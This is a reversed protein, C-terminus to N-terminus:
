GETIEERSHALAQETDISALLHCTEIYAVLNELPVDELITHSSQLIYGGNAGLREARETIEARVDAPTGLPLTENVSIGGYFTVQDGYLAKLRYPDYVSPDLPNFVDLGIEILDPFIAFIDGDSHQGVIRGLDKVRQYCVALRPKIFRKWLRPSFLLGTKSGWDDGFYFGDVGLAMQQDIIPLNWEYLIRDLLEEVFEPRTLMDVLLTEMGRLNVAREFLAMGLKGFVFIKGKYHEVTSRTSDFRGPRWPDPLNYDEFSSLNEGLPHYVPFPMGQSRNWAVGFEDIHVQDADDINLASPGGSPIHEVQIGEAWPNVNFDSGIKVIHNGIFRSLAANDPLGYHQRVKKYVNATAHFNYPVFDPQEHRIAALVRDRPIM